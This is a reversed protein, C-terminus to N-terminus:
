KSDKMNKGLLKGRTRSNWGVVFRRMERERARAAKREALGAPVGGDARLGLRSKKNERSGLNLKV